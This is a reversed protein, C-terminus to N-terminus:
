QIAVTCTFLPKRDRLWRTNAVPDICPYPPPTNLYDKGPGAYTGAIAALRQIWPKPLAALERLAALHEMTRAEQPLEAVWRVYETSLPLASGLEVLLAGMETRRGSPQEALFRGLLAIAEPRGLRGQSNGPWWRHAAPVDSNPLADFQAALALAETSTTLRVRFEDASLNLVMRLGVARLRDLALREDATANIFDRPGEVVARYTPEVNFGVAVGFCWGIAMRIALRRRQVWRLTRYRALIGRRLEPLSLASM